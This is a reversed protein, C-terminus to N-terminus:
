KIYIINENEKEFGVNDFNFAITIRDKTYNFKKVEHELHGHFLCFRGKKEPVTLDYQPFYTGPGPGDTLYLIGSFATSAKHHHMKAYDNKNYINAWAGQILFNEKYIYFIQKKISILFNHFNKNENLFNFKTHKGIINTYKHYFEKNEYIDTLLNNLILDDNIEDILIFTDLLIDKRLIETM